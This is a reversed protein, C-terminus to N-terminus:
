QNINSNIQKSESVNSPDSVEGNNSVAIVWYYYIGGKTFSSLDKYEMSAATSKDAPDSIDFGLQTTPKDNRFVKYSKVYGTLDYPDNVRLWTLKIGLTDFTVPDTEYSAVLNSPPDPKELPPRDNIFNVGKPDGYLQPQLPAPRDSTGCGSINILIMLLFLMLLFRKSIFM